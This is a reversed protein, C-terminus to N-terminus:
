IVKKYIVIHLPKPSNNFNLIKFSFTSIRSFIRHQFAFIGFKKHLFENNENATNFDTFEVGFLKFLCLYYKNCLRQIIDKSFYIFLSICYDFYPLIFTKFFQIKASTCLYFLRKISFLKSNIILSLNSIHKAFQLKNDITVGLLKFETVTEINFSGLTIFDPPKVRKNTIFM